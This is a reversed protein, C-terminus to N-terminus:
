AAAPAQTCGEPSTEGPVKRLARGLRILLVGLVALLLAACHARVEEPQGLRSM